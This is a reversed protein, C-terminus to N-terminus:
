TVSQERKTHYNQLRKKNLEEKHEKYYKQLYEKRSSDGNTKRKDRQREYAIRNYSTRDEAYNLIDKIASILKEAATDDCVTETIVSILENYKKHSLM